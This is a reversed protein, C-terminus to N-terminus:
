SVTQVKEDARSGLKHPPLSIGARAPLGAAHLLLPKQAQHPLLPPHLHGGGPEDAVVLDHLGDAAFEAGTRRVRDGGSYKNRDFKFEIKWERMRCVFSM